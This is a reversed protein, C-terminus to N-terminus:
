EAAQLKSLSNLDVKMMRKFKLKSDTGMFATMQNTPKPKKKGRTRRVSDLIKSIDVLGLARVFEEHKQRPLAKTLGDAPMQGTPVWKIQMTGGRHEQRLWHNHIDVHRLRSNLKIDEEVVIRITQKNDCQIILPENLKLKISRFLRTLYMAERTTHSLALLEAETSSTTVTPQKCAKWAISGGFLQMLFGESSKRDPNDAFSADESCIFARRGTNESNYELAFSKTRYLYGLVRDAALHDDSTPSVNHQGLRSSAFAVDPRTTIAAFLISGVKQQYLHKSEPSPAVTSENSHTPYSQIMPTDPMRGDFSKLFQNAIKDVYAEQSLWLLKKNRNRIVNIGLFWEMEGMVKM